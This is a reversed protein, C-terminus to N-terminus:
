SALIFYLILSVRGISGIFILFHKSKTRDTIFGIFSSSLTYGIVMASVILGIELGTANMNQRSIVPILFGMFFFGLSNLIAIKIMTNFDPTYRDTNNKNLM